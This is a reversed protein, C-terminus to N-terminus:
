TIKKLKIPLDYLKSINSELLNNNKRSNKIKNLQKNLIISPKDINKSEHQIALQIQTPLNSGIKSIIFDFPNEIELELSTVAIFFLAYSRAEEDLSKEEEIYLSAYEFAKKFFIYSYSDRILGRFLALLSMEPFISFPSNINKNKISIYLKSAEIMLKPIYNSIADYPSAFAALYYNPMNIMRLWSQAENLPPTNNIKDLLDPCDKFLGIYFFYTNMWYLDYLREDINLTSREKKSLAYFFEAFSKHKFMIYKEDLLTLIDNKHTLIEFVQESTIEDINRKSIYTQIKAKFYETDISPFQNEIIEEALIMIINKSIEYEKQSQLGKEVDWRGLMIELYKSYLETMNSPLDKENENIIKALLIAAIPSRPLQHFLQSKKIDEILRKSINTEICIKKVLDIVKGVSLPTIEFVKVKKNLALEQRFKSFNRITLIFKYRKDSLFENIDNFLKNKDEDKIRKEDLGDILVLITIEEGLISKISSLEDEIFSKLNNKYSDILLQFHCYITLVKENLFINVDSYREIVKRILKSKGFGMGGEIIIVKESMIKDFINIRTRKFFNPKNIYELEKSEFIDPEIYFDKDKLNVLSLSKDIEYNKIRVKNLYEGLPIPIEYWYHEMYKDILSVVKELSIFTINRNKFKEHIKLKANESVTDNVVVWTENLFVKKKGNLIYRELGCEDIQREIESFNQAVKGCKVVVGIYSYDDLIEDHKTLVFDAGLENTGQKYEVDKINPIKKFLNNLVPHFDKVEDKLNKVKQKKQNIDM